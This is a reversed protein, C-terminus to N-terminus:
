LAMQTIIIALSVFGLFTEALKDYRTAASVNSSKFSTRSVIDAAIFLKATLNPRAAIPDLRSAVVAVV